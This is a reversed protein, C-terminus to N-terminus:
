KALKQLIADLALEVTAYAANAGAEDYKVPISYLLDYVNQLDGRIEDLRDDTM